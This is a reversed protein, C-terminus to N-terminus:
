DFEFAGQIGRSELEARLLHLGKEKYRTVTRVTASLAQAIKENTENNFYAMLLVFHARPNARQVVALCSALLETRERETLLAEPRATPDSLVDLPDQTGKAATVRERRTVYRDCPPDFTRPDVSAQVERGTWPHQPDPHACVRARDASFRHHVCNGCRIRGEQKRQLDVAIRVARGALLRQIGILDSRPFANPPRSTLDLLTEQVVDELDGRFRNTLSRSLFRYLFERPRCAKNEFISLFWQNARRALSCESTEPLFQDCPACVGRIRQEEAPELLKEAALKV